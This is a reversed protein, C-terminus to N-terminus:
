CMKKRVMEREREKDENRKEKGNQQEGVSSSPTDFSKRRESNNITLLLM